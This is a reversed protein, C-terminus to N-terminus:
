FKYSAEVDLIFITAGGITVEVPAPIFSEGGLNPNYMTTTSTRTKATAEILGLVEDLRDDEVGIIITTNGSKLFGGSSSLKTFSFNKDLLEHSLLNMDEDQIVAILLKM